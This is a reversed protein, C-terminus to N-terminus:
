GARAAARSGTFAYAHGAGPYGSRGGLGARDDREGPVGPSLSPRRVSGCDDLYAIQNRLAYHVLGVISNIELKRMITARHTEVTRVSVCLQSAAEKNSKGEALLQVVERERPTLMGHHEEPGKGVPHCGAIVLGLM